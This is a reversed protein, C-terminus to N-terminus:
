WGAEIWAENFDVVISGATNQDNDVIERVQVSPINQTLSLAVADVTDGRTNGTTIIDFITTWTSGGNLSYELRIEANGGTANNTPVASRIKLILSALTRGSAPNQFGSITLITIRTAAGSSNQTCTGKSSTNGDATSGLPSFPNAGSGSTGQSATGYAVAAGGQQAGVGGDNNGLTDSAGAAPTVISGVFFRGAGALATEKTTTAV